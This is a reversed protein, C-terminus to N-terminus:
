GQSRNINAAKYVDKEMTFFYDDAIQLLKAESMELTYGRTVNKDDVLPRLVGYKDLPLVLIYRFGSVKWNELFSNNFVVM